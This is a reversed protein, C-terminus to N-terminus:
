ELSQFPREEGSNQEEEGATTAEASHPAENISHQTTGVNDFYWDVDERNELDIGEQGPIKFRM